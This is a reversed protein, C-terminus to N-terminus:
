GRVLAPYKSPTYLRGFPKNIWDLVTGVATLDGSAADLYPSSIHIGRWMEAPGEQELGMVYGRYIATITGGGLAAAELDEDFYDGIGCIRLSIEGPTNESKEPLTIDFPLGIFEVIAGPNYIADDELKALFRKPTPELPWRLVRAPQTFSKHNLELTHLIQQEVPASAYAEQIAKQLLENM